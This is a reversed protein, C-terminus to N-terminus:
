RDGRRWSRNQLGRGIAVWRSAFLQSGPWAIRATPAAERRLAAVHALTAVTMAAVLEPALGDAPAPTPTPAADAEPVAAPAAAAPPRDFRLVLSLLGWLLALLGFVLGMGAVTMSLGWALDSV